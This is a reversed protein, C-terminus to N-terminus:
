RNLILVESNPSIRVGTSPQAEPISPLATQEKTQKQKKM